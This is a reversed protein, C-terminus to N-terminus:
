GQVYVCIHSLVYGLYKDPVIYRICRGFGGFIYSFVATTLVSQRFDCVRDKLIHDNQYLAKIVHTSGRRTNPFYRPQSDPSCFVDDELDSLSVAKFNDILTISHANAIYTM